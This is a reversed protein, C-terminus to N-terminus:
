GAAQRARQIHTYARMLLPKVPEPLAEFDQLTMDLPVRATHNVEDFFWTRAYVLYAIPRMATGNNPLGTHLTRYDVMLCDGRKLPVATVPQGPPPTGDPRLHSGPWVGTPGTEMDVDILPVAVNVAYPPLMPAIAPDAYLHGHDRHIQQQAAGPYSVVMTLGSLRMTNSLLMPLFRCLLPNALVDPKLLAGKLRPAIDFRKDGVHFVPNPPPEAARAAMAVADLGGFQADFEARMADILAQDFANRLILCGYRRFQANANAATAQHLARADREEPSVSVIWDM